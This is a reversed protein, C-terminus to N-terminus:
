ASKPHDLVWKMGKETIDVRHLRDARPPRVLFRDDSGLLSSLREISLSEKGTFLM